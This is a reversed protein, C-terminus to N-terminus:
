SRSLAAWPSRDVRRHRRDLSQRLELDPVAPGRVVPRLRPDGALDADHRSLGRLGLHALVARDGLFVAVAARGHRGSCLSRLGHGHCPGPDAHRARRLRGARHQRHALSRLGRAALLRPGHADRRDGRGAHRLGVRGRLFRRVLLRDAAAPPAPGGHHRRDIQQLTEFWGKEVTLRYLFIVNLIIWGIPFLGTVVGFLAARLALGTPMTFVFVAVLSRWRWPSCPRSM